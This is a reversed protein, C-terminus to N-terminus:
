KQKGVDTTFVPFSLNKEKEWCITFVIFILFKVLMRLLCPLRKKEGKGLLRYFRYFDFIKEREKVWCATFVTIISFFVLM